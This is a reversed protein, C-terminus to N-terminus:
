TMNGTGIGTSTTAGTQSTASGATAVTIGQQVTINVTGSKVFLDIATSLRQAFETISNQERQMMDNMIGEIDTQLQQKNLSM